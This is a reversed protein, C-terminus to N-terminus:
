EDVCVVTYLTEGTPKSVKGQVKWHRGDLEYIQSYSDFRGKVQAKKLADEPVERTDGPKWPRLVNFPSGM